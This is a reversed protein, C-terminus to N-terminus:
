TAKAVPSLGDISTYKAEKPNVGRRFEYGLGGISITKDDM